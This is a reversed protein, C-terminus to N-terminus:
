RGEYTVQQLVHDADSRRGVRRLLEAYEVGVRAFTSGRMYQPAVTMSPKPVRRFVKGYLDVLYADGSQRNPASRMLRRAGRLADIVFPGETAYFNAAQGYANWAAELEGAEALSDARKVAVELALQPFRSVRKGLWLWAEDRTAPDDMTAIMPSVTTVLVDPYQKGVFRHIAEFWAQREEPALDASWSALLDWCHRGWPSSSASSQLLEFRTETTAERPEARM